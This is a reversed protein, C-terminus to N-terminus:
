PAAKLTESDLRARIADLITWAWAPKPIVLTATRQSGPGAVREFRRPENTVIVALVEPRQGDLATLAERVMDHQFEDPFLIVAASSQPTMELLRELM